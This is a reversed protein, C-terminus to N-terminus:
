HKSLGQKIICDCYYTNAKVLKIMRPKLYNSYILRSICKLFILEQGYVIILSRSKNKKLQSM